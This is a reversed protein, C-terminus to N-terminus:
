TIYDTIRKHFLWTDDQLVFTDDYHGVILFSWGADGRSAFAVDSTAKAQRERIPTIRTNTVIHLQPREPIWQTFAQRLAPRGAIPEAGPLELVGDETYLAVVDDVRGADMAQTHTGIANRIRAAIWSDVADTM